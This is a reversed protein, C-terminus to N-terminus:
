AYRDLSREVASLAKVFGPQFGCTLFSAAKSPLVIVLPAFTIAGGLVAQMPAVDGRNSPGAALFGNTLPPFWQDLTAVLGFAFALWGLKVM